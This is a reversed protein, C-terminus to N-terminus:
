LEKNYKANWDSAYWLIHQQNKELQHCLTLDFWISRCRLFYVIVNLHKAFWIFEALSKVQWHSSLTFRSDVIWRIMNTSLSNLSTPFYPLLIARAIFYERNYGGSLNGLLHGIDHLWRYKETDDVNVADFQCYQINIRFIPLITVLKLSWKAVLVWDIHMHITFHWFFVSWCVFLVSRLIHFHWFEVAFCNILAFM